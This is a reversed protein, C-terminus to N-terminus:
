VRSVIMGYQHEGVAVQRAAVLGAAQIHGQVIDAHVIHDARPGLGGHSESWGIVLSKGNPKLIRAIEAFLNQPKELQWLLNAVLVRDVSSDPIQALSGPEDFDVWLPMINSINIREADGLFKELLDKQIDGVYVRGTPGVMRAMELAYMGGGVGCELVAHGPHLELSEIQQRPSMM